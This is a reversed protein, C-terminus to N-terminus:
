TVTLTLDMGLQKHGPISCYVDYTGPKLDVKLSSSKGPDITPTGKNVGGGKVVLDHPVKGDNHVQFTYSGAPVSTQPLKIKFEVESVQVTKNTRTTGTTSTKTTTTTQGTTSTTTTTETTSTETQAEAAGAEAPERGFFEVASIMGLFMLVCAILFVTLGRGPFQPWWRPVVLSAILAFGVFAAVALGLGVKHSTSLALLLVALVYRLFGAAHPVFAV